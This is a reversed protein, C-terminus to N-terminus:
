SLPGSVAAIPQPSPTGSGDRKGTAGPLEIPAGSAASAKAPAAGAWAFILGDEGRLFRHCRVGATARGKAPYEDYPTVKVTGADTGPLASSSGAVTVV